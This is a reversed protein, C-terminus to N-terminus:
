MNKFSKLIKSGEFNRGTVRDRTGENSTVEKIQTAVGM